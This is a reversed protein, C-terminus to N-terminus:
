NADNRVLYKSIAIRPCLGAGAKGWPSITALVEEPTLDETSSM